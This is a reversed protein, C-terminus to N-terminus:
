NLDSDKGVYKTKKKAVFGRRFFIYWFTDSWYEITESRYQLSHYRGGRILLLICLLMVKQKGRRITKAPHSYVQCGSPKSWRWWVDASQLTSCPTLMLVHCTPPTERQTQKDPLRAEGPKQGGGRCLKRDIELAAHENWTVSPSRTM